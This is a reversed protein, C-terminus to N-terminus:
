RITVTGSFPEFRGGGNTIGIPPNEEAGRAAFFWSYWGNVQVVFTGSITGPLPGVTVSFTKLEDASFTMRTPIAPQVLVGNVSEAVSTSNYNMTFNVSILEVKESRWAPVLGINNTAMMTVMFFPHGGIWTTNLGTVNVVMPYVILPSIQTGGTPAAAASIAIISVTIILTIPFLNGLIRTEWKTEKLRL